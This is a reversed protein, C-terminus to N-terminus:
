YYQTPHVLLLAGGVEGGFAGPRSQIALAQSGTCAPELEVSVARAAIEERGGHEGPHRLVHLAVPFLLEGGYHREGAELRILVSQAHGVVGLIAEGRVEEGLVERPGPLSHAARPLAEGGGNDREDM